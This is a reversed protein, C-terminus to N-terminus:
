RAFVKKGAYAAGVIALIFVAVFAFMPVSTEPSTTAPMYIIGYYGVDTASDDSPVTLPLVTFTIESGNITSDVITYTGKVADYYFVEPNNKEAIGPVSITIAVDKLTGDVGLVKEAYNTLAIDFSGYTRFDKYKEGFVSEFSDTAPVYDAYADHHTLEILARNFDINEVANNEGDLISANDWDTDVITIKDAPSNNASISISFASVVLAALVLVSLIKKM